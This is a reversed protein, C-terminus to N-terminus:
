NVRNWKKIGKAQAYEKGKNLVASTSGLIQLYNTVSLDYLSISM